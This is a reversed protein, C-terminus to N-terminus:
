GNLQGYIPVNGYNKNKACFLINKMNIFLMKYKSLFKNQASLFSLETSGKGLFGVHRNTTMKCM